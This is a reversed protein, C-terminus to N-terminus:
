VLVWFFFKIKTFNQVNIQIELKSHVWKPKEKLFNSYYTKKKNQVM